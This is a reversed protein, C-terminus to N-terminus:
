GLRLFFCIKSYSNCCSKLKVNLMLPPVTYTLETDERTHRQARCTYFHGVKLQKRSKDTQSLILDTPQKGSWPLKINDGIDRTMSRLKLWINYVRHRGYWDLASVTRNAHREDPQAVVVPLSSPVLVTFLM